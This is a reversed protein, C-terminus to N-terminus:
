IQPRRTAACQVPRDQWWQAVERAVWAPDDLPLDHGAHSHIALPVRWHRALASSCRPDVLEDAGSSLLLVPVAPRAPPARYRLAAILQRLANTRSVPQETRYRVWESLVAREGRRLRSTARLIFSEWALADGVVALRLLAAYHRASLRQHFPSLGRLSTNVLVCGRVEEPHRDAWATAVMAGLSMALLCYPPEWGASAMDARCREAMEEITLPSSIRNLRGNGPLDPTAVRIGPLAQQLIAPFDAWHRSERTLGRLLIWTASM